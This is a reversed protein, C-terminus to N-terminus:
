FIVFKLPLFLTQFKKLTASWCFLNSIIKYWHSNEHSSGCFRPFLIPIIIICLSWNRADFNEMLLVFIHIKCWPIVLFNEFQFSITNVSLNLFGRLFIPSNEASTTRRPWLIHKRLFWLENILTMELNSPSMIWLNLSM